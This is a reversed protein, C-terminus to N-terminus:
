VNEKTLTDSKKMVRIMDPTIRDQESIEDALTKIFLICGYENSFDFKNTDGLQFSDNDIISNLSVSTGKNGGDSVNFQYKSSKSGKPSLIQLSIALGHNKEEAKINLEYGRALNNLADITGYFGAIGAHDPKYYKALLSELKARKEDVHTFFTTTLEDTDTLAM